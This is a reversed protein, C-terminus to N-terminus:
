LQEIATAVMKTSLRGEIGKSHHLAQHLLMSVSLPSGSRREEKRCPSDGPPVLPNNNGSDGPPVSLLVVLKTAKRAGIEKAAWLTPQVFQQSGQIM